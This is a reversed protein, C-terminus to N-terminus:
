LYPSDVDFVQKCKATVLIELQNIQNTGALQHCIEAIYGSLAHVSNSFNPANESYTVSSMIAFSYTVYLKTPSITCFKTM